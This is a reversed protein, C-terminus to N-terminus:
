SQRMLGTRPDFSCSRVNPYAPKSPFPANCFEGWIQDLVMIKLNFNTFNAVSHIDLVEAKHYSMHILDWYVEASM